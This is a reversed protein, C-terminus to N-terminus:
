KKKEKFLFVKKIKSESCKRGLIRYQFPIPLYIIPHFTPILKKLVQYDFFTKYQQLIEHGSGFVEDTEFFTMFDDYQDRVARRSKQLKIKNDQFAKAPYKM